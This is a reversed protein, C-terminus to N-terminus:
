SLHHFVFTYKNMNKQLAALDAEKVFEGDTTYAHVTLFEIAKTQENYKWDMVVMRYSDPTDLDFKKILDRVALTDTLATSMNETNFNMETQGPLTNNIDSIQSVVKELRNNLKAVKKKLMEREKVLSM